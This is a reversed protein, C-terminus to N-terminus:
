RKKLTACCTQVFKHRVFSTTPNALNKNPLLRGGSVEKALILVPFKSLARGIKSLEAFKRSTQRFQHYIITDIYRNSTSTESIKASAATSVSLPSDIM